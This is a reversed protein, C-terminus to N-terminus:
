IKPLGTELNWGPQSEGIFVLPIISLISTSLVKGCLLLHYHCKKKQQHKLGCFIRVYATVRSEPTHKFLSANATLLPLTLWLSQKSLSESFFQLGVNNMQIPYEQYILTVDDLAKSSTNALDIQQGLFEFATTPEERNVAYLNGDKDLVTIDGPLFNKTEYEGDNSNWFFVGPVM